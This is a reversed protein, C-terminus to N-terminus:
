IGYCVLVRIHADQLRQLATPLGGSELGKVTELNRAKERNRVKRLHM